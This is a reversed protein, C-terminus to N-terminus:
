SFAAQAIRHLKIFHRTELHNCAKTSPMNSRQGINRRREHIMRRLRRDAARPHAEPAGAQYQHL